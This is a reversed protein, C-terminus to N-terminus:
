LIPAKQGSLLALSISTALSSPTEGAVSLSFRLFASNLTMPQYRELLPSLSPGSSM